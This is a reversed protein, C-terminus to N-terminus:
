IGILANIDAPTQSVADANWSAIDPNHGLYGWAAAICPMGAAHAAQIDRLDDGVYVCQDAALQMHQTAHLLPDAAPKPKAATDGAVWCASRDLWQLQALLPQTLWGPKNTVVAWPRQHLELQLLLEPIGAFPRSRHTLNARYHALFSDRRTNFDAHDPTLGLAVKLLGRAGSSAEPRYDDLPLPTLGCEQRVLNAAHGLDPATDVLTGDLDFLVAAPPKRNLKM